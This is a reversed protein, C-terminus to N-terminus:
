STPVNYKQSLNKSIAFNVVKVDHDNSIKHLSENGIAPKFIDENGVKANFDLLINIHYKPFKDFVREL